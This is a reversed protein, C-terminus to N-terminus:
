QSRKSLPVCPEDPVVALLREAVDRFEDAAYSELKGQDALLAIDPNIPLRGLVPSQISLALEEANSPGFVEMDQGCGPCRVYSMNEILGLVPISLQEAMAAAKQVVMGALTQPTTVLVIGNLPLSQMVTLSADSTGPPLDVILYDLDGWVVDGWFQKIAGSILPGRWIVAQNPDALLLNISMVKIGGETTVPLIGLPSGMPRGPDPLLMKPISPGTIDADLIGVTLGKRRLAVALLVSVSSKGVGGKGSVVAVVHKIRNYAAASGEDAKPKGFTHEREADSMQRADIKVDNVGPLAMLRERADSQMQNRLPCAMTTLALTFSVVGGEFTLDHVMGLDVISRNLEPDMVHRLADEIERIAPM